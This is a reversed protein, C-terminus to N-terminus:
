NVSRLNERMQKRDDALAMHSYRHSRFLLFGFSSKIILLWLNQARPKRLFLVCLPRRAKSEKNSKQWEANSSARRPAASKERGLRLKAKKKVRKEGETPRASLARFFLLFFLVKLRPSAKKHEFNMLLFLYSTMRGARRRRASEGITNGKRWESMQKNENLTVNYTESNKSERYINKRTRFYVL